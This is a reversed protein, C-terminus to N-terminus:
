IPYDIFANWLLHRTLLVRVLSSSCPEWNGPLACWALDQPGFPLAAISELFLILIAPSCLTLHSFRDPAQTAQTFINVKLLHSAM